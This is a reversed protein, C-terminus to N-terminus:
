ASLDFFDALLDSLSLLELSSFFCSLFDFSGEGDVFVESLAEDLGEPPSQLKQCQVHVSRSLSCM